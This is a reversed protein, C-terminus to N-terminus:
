ERLPLNFAHHKIIVSFAGGICDGPHQKCLSFPVKHAGKGESGEGEAIIRKENGFAFVRKAHSLYAGCL